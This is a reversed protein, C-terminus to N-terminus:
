NESDSQRPPQGASNNRSREDVINDPAEEPIREVNTSFAVQRAPGWRDNYPGYGLSRQPGDNYGGQMRPPRYSGRQRQIYNDFRVDDLNQRGDRPRGGGSQYGRRQGEQYTHNYRTGFQRPLNCENAYHGHKGCRWCIVDPRDYESPNGGNGYAGQTRYSRNRRNDTGGDYNGLGGSQPRQWNSRSSGSASFGELQNQVPQGWQSHGMGPEPNTPRTRLVSVELGEHAKMGERAKYSLELTTGKRVMETYSLDDQQQILWVGVEDKKAGSVLADKLVMERTNRDDLKPWGKHALKSLEDAFEALSEGIKQTRGRLAIRAQLSQDQKLMATVEIVKAKYEEWTQSEPDFDPMAHDLKELTSEPLYTQFIVIKARDELRQGDTYAEFMRLYRKMEMKDWDFTPPKRSLASLQNRNLILGARSRIQELDSQPREGTTQQETPVNGARVDILRRLAADQEANLGDLQFATLVGQFLEELGQEEPPQAM